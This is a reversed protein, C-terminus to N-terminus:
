KFNHLFMAFEQENNSVLDDLGEAVHHVQEALLLTARVQLNAIRAVPDAGAPLGDLANLIQQAQYKFTLKIREEEDAAWKIEWEERFAKLEPAYEEFGETHEIDWIPDALWNDKLAQIEQPTKEM